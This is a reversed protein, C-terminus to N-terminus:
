FRLQLRASVEHLQRAGPSPPAFFSPNSAPTVEPPTEPPRRTGREGPIVAGPALAQNNVRRPDSTQSGPFSYLSWEVALKFHSSLWYALAVQLVDARIRTTRDDLLGRTVLPDSRAISDYRLFLQEWRALLEVSSRLPEEPKKKGTLLLTENWRLAKLAPTPETLWLGATVYYTVGTLSGSRITEEADPATKTVERRGFDVYSGEAQVDFPGLEGVVDAGIARQASSPVVHIEGPSPAASSTYIPNWFAYGHETSFGSVPADAWASHPDVVGYRGSAGVRLRDEGDRNFSVSVRGNVDARGDVPTRNRGEGNFVGVGYSFPGPTGFAMLGVDVCGLPCVVSVTRSPAMFDFSAAPRVNEWTVPVPFQGFRLAFADAFKYDVFAIADGGRFAFTQGAGGTNSPGFDLAVNYFFREGFSGGFTPRLAHIEFGPSLTTGDDRQYRSVGAGAFGYADLQMFLGPSFTFPFPVEGHLEDVRADASRPPAPPPEWGGAPPGAGAAADGSAGGAAGAGAQAAARAVRPTIAVLASSALIAAVLVSWRGHWPGSHATRM